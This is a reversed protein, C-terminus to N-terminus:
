RLSIRLSQSSPRNILTKDIVSTQEEDFKSVLAMTSASSAESVQKTM